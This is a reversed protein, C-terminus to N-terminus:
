VSVSNGPGPGALLDGDPHFALDLNASIGRNVEATADRWPADPLRKLYTWEWGRLREPCKNLLDEVTCWNYVSAEEQALPINRLYLNFELDKKANAELEARANAQIAVWVASAIVAGGAVLLMIGLLAATALTRKNRRAFKRLKYGLTP